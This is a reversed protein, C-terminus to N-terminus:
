TAAIDAALQAPFSLLGPILGGIPTGGTLELPLPTGFLDVIVVPTALPALVGGLPLYTTSPLALGLLSVTAPPL